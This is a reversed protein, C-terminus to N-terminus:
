GSGTVRPGFVLAVPPGLELRAGHLAAVRAALALGLGHGPSADGKVFPELVAPDITAARADHIEVRRGRIVVRRLGGGHVRANTVLNSLAVELLRADGDVILPDGEVLEDEKLCVEVLLDVRVPEAALQDSALQSWVLLRNVMGAARRTTDVIDGLAGSADDPATTEARALIAALPTRLEHAAGALVEERARIGDLLAGLVRASLWTSFLLGLVILALAGMATLGAFTWTARLVGGTAASVVIVGTMVDDDDYSPRVLVRRLGVTFIGPHEDEIVEGIIEDLGPFSMGHIIARERDAAAIQVAPDLLAREKDLLETRFTGAADFWALGYVVAGHSRLQADLADRNSRADLGISLAALGLVGLTWVAATAGALRRALRRAEPRLVAAGRHAVHSPEARSSM